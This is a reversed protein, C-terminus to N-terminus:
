IDDRGRGTVADRLKDTVAVAPGAIKLVGPSAPAHPHPRTPGHEKATTIQTGLEAAQQTSLAARLGPWVQTEEFDIHERCGQILSAMLRGFDPDAADLKDLKALLEKAHSEQAMARDALDDGDALYQRVAPWFFQEEAVEHRSSEIILREALATRGGPVAQDAEAAPLELKALLHKVEGHDTALVEFVDAM